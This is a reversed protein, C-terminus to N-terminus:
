LSGLEVIEIDSDMDDVTYQFRSKLYTEMDKYLSHVGFDNYLLIGLDGMDLITEDCIDIIPGNTVFLKRRVWFVVKVKM